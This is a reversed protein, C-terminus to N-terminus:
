RQTKVENKLRRSEGPFPVFTMMEEMRTRIYETYFEQITEWKYNTTAYTRAGAEYRHGFLDIVPKVINGYDKVEAEERGLEDIFLPTRWCTEEPTSKLWGALAKSHITTTVKRSLDNSLSLYAMMLLSKGCGMKGSFVFGANLNWRCAPNNTFYLYLQEIIPKNHADIHYPHTLSRRLMIQQAHGCILKEFEPYTLAVKSKFRSLNDQTQRIQKEVRETQEECVPNRKIINGIAEM